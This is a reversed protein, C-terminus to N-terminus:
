MKNGDADTRMFCLIFVIGLAMPVVFSLIVGSFDFGAQLLAGCVLPAVIGAIRGIAQMFSVGTGRCSIPYVGTCLNNVSAPVGGLGLGLFAVLMFLTPASGPILALLILAVATAAFMTISANKMTLKVALYGAIYNSVISAITQVMNISYSLTMDFGKEM